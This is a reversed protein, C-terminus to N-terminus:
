KTVISLVADRTVSGIIIALATLRLIISHGYASLKTFIGIHGVIDLFLTIGLGVRDQPCIQTREGRVIPLM